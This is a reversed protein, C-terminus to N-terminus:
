SVILVGHVREAVAQLGDNGDLKVGDIEHICEVYVDRLRDLDDNETGLLRFVLEPLDTYFHDHYFGAQELGRRIHHIKLDEKILQIILDRHHEADVITNKMINLYKNM